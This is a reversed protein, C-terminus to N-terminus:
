KSKVVMEPPLLGSKSRSTQVSPKNDEAFIAHLAAKCITYISFCRRSAFRSCHLSHSSDPASQSLSFHEQLHTMYRLRPSTQQYQTMREGGTRTSIGCCMLCISLRLYAFPAAALLAVIIQFSNLM